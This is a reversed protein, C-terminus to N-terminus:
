VLWYTKEHEEQALLAYQMSLQPILINTPTWLICVWYQILQFFPFFNPPDWVKNDTKWPTATCEGSFLYRGEREQSFLEWMVELMLIVSIKMGFLSGHLACCFRIFVFIPDSLGCLENEWIGESMCEHGQMLNPGSLGCIHTLTLFKHPHSLGKFEIHKKM